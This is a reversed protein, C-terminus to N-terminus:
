GGLVSSGIGLKFDDQWNAFLESRNRLAWTNLRIAADMDKKLLLLLLTKTQSADEPNAGASAVYFELMADWNQDVMTKEDTLLKRWRQSFHKSALYARVRDHRFELVDGRDVLLKRNVLETTLEQPLSDKRPDFPRKEIMMTFALHSLIDPYDSHGKKTWVEKEVM